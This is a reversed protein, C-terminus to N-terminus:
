RSSTLRRRALAIAFLALLAAGIAGCVAGAYGVLGAYWFVFGDKGGSQVAAFDTVIEDKYQLDMPTLPTKAGSKMLFVAQSRREGERNMTRDLAARLAQAQPRQRAPHRHLKM